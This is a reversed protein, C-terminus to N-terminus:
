SQKLWRHDPRVFVVQVRLEAPYLVRSRVSRDCTRIRDLAGFVLFGANIAPKKSDAIQTIHKACTRAHKVLSRARTKSQGSFGGLRERPILREPQHRSLPLCRASSSKAARTNEVAWEADCLCHQVFHSGKGCPNTIGLIKLTM